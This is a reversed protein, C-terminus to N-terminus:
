EEAETLELPKIEQLERGTVAQLEGYMGHTNDIIKRLEKEQRSWKLNFWRKEKEIDGQLNNFAEVIAEIRHTFEVSRLYQYLVEMKENKGVNALKEFHIHILDFRLAIALGRASKITTIWVNERYVFTEIDEPPNAVVLVALQAGAARQDERLKKLWEDKWQANKSEWLIMGCERGLKDVVTQSIDAGREGKKVESVKDEPFERRLIQELELEMVEGQIQQSGQELKRKLDDNMKLAEQLKKDKEADKLQHNEQAEKLANDRIKVREEDLQRQKEIEFKQKAEELERKEKRIKLEQEEAREARQKLELIQEEKDKLEKTVSEQAELKAKESVQKKAEEFEKKKLEEFEQRERKIQEIEGRHKLQEEKLLKEELEHKYADTPEFLKGCQPCKIQTTM